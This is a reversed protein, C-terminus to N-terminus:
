LKFIWKMGHQTKFVVAYAHRRVEMHPGIKAFTQKHRFYVCVGIRVCSTLDRIPMQLRDRLANQCGSNQIQIETLCLQTKLITGANHLVTTHMSRYYSPLMRRTQMRRDVICKSEKHAISEKATPPSARCEQTGFRADDDHLVLLWCSHM